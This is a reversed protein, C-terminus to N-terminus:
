GLFHILIMIIMALDLVLYWQLDGSQLLQLAMAPTEVVKRVTSGIGSLISDDCRTIAISARNIFNSSWNLFWPGLRESKLQDVARVSGILWNMITAMAHDVGYGEIIIATFRPVIRQASQWTNRFLYSFFVLILTGGLLSIFAIENMKEIVIEPVSGMFLPGVFLPEIGFPASLGFWTGVWLVHVNALLLVLPALIATWPANIPSPRDASLWFLQLPLFAHFVLTTGSLILVAPDSLGATIVVWQGGFFLFGPFGVGSILLAAWVVRLWLSKNRNLANKEAAHQSLQVCWTVGAGALIGGILISLGAYSGLLEFVGASLCFISVFWLHVAQRWQVGSVVGVLQALLALSLFIVGAIRGGGIQSVWPDFRLIVSFAAIGVLVQSVVAIPFFPTNTKKRVWGLSPFARFHWISGLFIFFTGFTVRWYEEADSFIWSGSDLGVILTAGLVGLVLGVAHDSLYRFSFEACYDGDEWETGLVIFGGAIALMTGIFVGWLSTSSWAVVVGSVGFTAGAVVLEAMKAQPYQRWSHVGLGGILAVMIAICSSITDLRLVGRGPVLGTITAIGITIISALGLFVAWDGRRTLIRGRALIFVGIILNVSIVFWLGSIGGFFDM